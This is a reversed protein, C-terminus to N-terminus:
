INDKLWQSGADNVGAWEATDGSIELVLLQDDTGISSKLQDRIERPSHACRVIWASELHHWWDGLSQIREILDDYMEGETPHIDYAILITAMRASTGILHRLAQHEPGNAGESLFKEIEIYSIQGGSQPNPRHMVAAANTAPDKTLVWSDGNSSQYILSAEDPPLEGKIQKGLVYGPTTQTLYKRMLQFQANPNNKWIAVEAFTVTITGDRFPYDGAEQVNNLDSWSVNMISENGFCIGVTAMQANPVMPRIAGRVSHQLWRKARM